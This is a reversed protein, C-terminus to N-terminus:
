SRVHEVCKFKCLSVSFACLDDPYNVQVIFDHHPSLSNETIAEFFKYAYKFM